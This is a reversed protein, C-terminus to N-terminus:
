KVRFVELMASFNHGLARDNCGTAVATHGWVFCMYVM